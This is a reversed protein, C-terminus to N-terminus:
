ITDPDFLQDVVKAKSLNNLAHEDSSYREGKIARVKSRHAEERLKGTYSLHARNVARHLAKDESDGAFMGKLHPNEHVMRGLALEDPEKDTRMQTRGGVTRTPSGALRLTEDKYQASPMEGGTAIHQRMVGYLARSTHNAFIGSHTGYSSNYSGSRLVDKRSGPAGTDADTIALRGETPFLSDHRDAYGDAVGERVPDHKNRSYQHDVDMDGYKDEIPLNVPGSGGVGRGGGGPGGAGPGGSLHVDHGLEHTLSRQSQGVPLAANITIQSPQDGGYMYRGAAGPDHNNSSLVTPRQIGRGDVDHISLNSRGVTDALLRHQAQIFDQSGGSTVPTPEGTKPDPNERGFSEAAFRARQEQALQDEVSFTQLDEPLGRQTIGLGNSIAHIRQKTSVLPDGRRGTGTEPDFLLGQRDVPNASEHEGTNIDYHDEVGSKEIDGSKGEWYTNNYQPGREFRDAM